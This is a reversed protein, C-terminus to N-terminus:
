QKGAWMFCASASSSSLRKLQESVISYLLVTNEDSNIHNASLTNYRLFM